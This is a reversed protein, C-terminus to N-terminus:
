RPALDALAALLREVSRPELEVFGGPVEAIAGGAPTSWLRAARVAGDRTAVELRRPEGADSPAAALARPVLGLAAGLLARARAPDVPAGSELRPPQDPPLVVVTDGVALRAVDPAAVGHLPPAAWSTATPELERTLFESVVWTADEGRRRVFLGLRRTDLRGGQTVADALEIGAIRGVLLDAIVGDAADIRLGRAAGESVGWEVHREAGGGAPRDCRWARVRALLAEVGPRAAATRGEADVVSWGTPSTADRALALSTAGRSLVLRTVRAPDLDVLPPPPAPPRDAWAACGRLAALAAVLALLARVRRSM